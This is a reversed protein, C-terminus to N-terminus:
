RQALRRVEALLGDVKAEIRTLADMVAPNELRNKMEMERARDLADRQFQPMAKELESREQQCM